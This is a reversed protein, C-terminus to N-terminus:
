CEWQGPYSVMAIATKGGHLVYPGFRLKGETWFVSGLDASAECQASCLALLLLLRGLLWSLSGLEVLQLRGLLWSVSGLAVTAKGKDLVCFGSATGRDQFCLWSCCCGDWKASCLACLM